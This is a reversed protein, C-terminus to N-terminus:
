LYVLQSGLFEVLVPVVVLLRRMFSQSSLHHLPYLKNTFLKSIWLFCHVVRNCIHIGNERETFYLFLLELQDTENANVQRCLQLLLVFVDWINWHNQILKILVKRFILKFTAFFLNKLKQIVIEGEFNREGIDKNEHFLTNKLFSIKHPQFHFLDGFKNFDNLFYGQLYHISRYIM